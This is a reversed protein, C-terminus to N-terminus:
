RRLVDVAFLAVCEAKTLLAGRLVSVLFDVDGDHAIDHLTVINPHNLASAARTERLFRGALQTLEGTNSRM